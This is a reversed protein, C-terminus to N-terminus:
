CHPEVDKWINGAAINHVTSLAVGFMQAIELRSVEDALMTKIEAVQPEDLFTTPKRRKNEKPTVVDLHDPNVCRTNRCLHDLEMGAPIPGRHREFVFRHAPLNKGNVSVNGYGHGSLARQWEWCGTDQDVIYEVPAKRRQHGQIYKAAQGKVRGLGTSNRTILKTPEGCGCQCLGLPIVTDKPLM